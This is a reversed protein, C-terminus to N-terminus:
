ADPVETDTWEQSFTEDWHADEHGERLGCVLSLTIWDIGM